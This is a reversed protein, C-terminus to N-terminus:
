ISVVARVWESISIAPRQATTIGTQTPPLIIAFSVLRRNSEDSGLRGDWLFPDINILTHSPDLKRAGLVGFWQPSAGARGGAV